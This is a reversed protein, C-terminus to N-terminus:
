MRHWALLASAHDLESCSYNRDLECKVSVDGLVFMTCGEEGHGHRRACVNCVGGGM